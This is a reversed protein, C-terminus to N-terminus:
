VHCPAVEENWRKVITSVDFDQCRVLSIRALFQRLEDNQLVRLIADALAEPNNPPVLIGYEGDGLIEAPGGPCDTSIVPLGCCMSEVIVNGFGENHSSLVFIDARAFFAYPNSQWGAFYIDSTLGLEAALQRLQADCEGDGLIMLRVNMKSRVAAFAKILVDFGKLATLRGASVVIRVDKDTWPLTIPELLLQAIAKLDFPNHIISVKNAPVGFRDVLEDRIYRSPVVILDAKSYLHTICWKMTSGIPRRSLVSVENIILQGCYLGSWKLLLALINPRPMFSILRSVRFNKLVHHLRIVRRLFRSPWIRSPSSGDLCMVKGNFPYGLKADAYLVLMSTFKLSHSLTSIVREAGGRQFAITLFAIDVRQM